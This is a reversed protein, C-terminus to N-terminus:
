EAGGKDQEVLDGVVYGHSILAEYRGYNHNNIDVITEYEKFSLKKPITFGAQQIASARDAFFGSQSMLSLLQEREVDSKTQIARFMCKKSITVIYGTDSEYGIDNETICIVKRAKSWKVIGDFKWEFEEGVKPTYKNM